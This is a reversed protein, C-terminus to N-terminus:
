LKHKTRQDFANAKVLGLRQRPAALHDHVIEVINM